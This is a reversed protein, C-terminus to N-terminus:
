IRIEIQSSINFAMGIFIHQTEIKIRPTFKIKNIYVSLFRSIFTHTACARREKSEPPLFSHKVSHTSYALIGLVFGGAVFIVFAGYM